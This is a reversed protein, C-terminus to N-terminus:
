KSLPMSALPTMLLKEAKSQMAMEINPSIFEGRTLHSTIANYIKWRDLKRDDTVGEATQDYAFTFKKKGNDVEETILVHIGLEKLVAQIHRGRKDFMHEIIKCCAKWEISDAMSDSVWFKLKEENNIFEKLKLEIFTDVNKAIIDNHKITDAHGIRSMVMGNM